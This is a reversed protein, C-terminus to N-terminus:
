HRLFGEVDLLIGPVYQNTFSAIIAIIEQHLGPSIELDVQPFLLAARRLPPSCKTMLVKQFKQHM